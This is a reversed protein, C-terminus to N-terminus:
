EAHRRATAKTALYGAWGGGFETSTRSHEDLEIVREITHELFMRDHSIVVMGGPLQDLFRELQELGAFDLDNTPEDLLVIDFRSLIIAALAARAAQGGSLQDLSLNLCDGALGVEACVSLSRAHIDPGGLSLYRELAVSYRDAADPAERGLAAATDELEAEAAAVGTRRRLYSLLPESNGSSPEQPLYGVTLTPPAMVLKGGDPKELGALIRLLTTKGAGNPGIVGLRSGAGVTLDVGALVVFDGRSFTIQSAVITTM